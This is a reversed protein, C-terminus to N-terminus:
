ISKLDRFIELLGEVNRLEDVYIFDATPEHLKNIDRNGVEDLNGHTIGFQRVTEESGFLLPTSPDCM